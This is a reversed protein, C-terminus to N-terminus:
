DEMANIGYSRLEGYQEIERYQDDRMYNYFEIDKEYEAAVEPVTRYDTLDYNDVLYRGFYVSLKEAGTINLHIGGDYTDTDLDIGMEEMLRIANVYEIGNDEAYQELWEDWEDYWAPYLCPSKIL